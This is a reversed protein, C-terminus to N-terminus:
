GDLALANKAEDLAKDGEADDGRDRLALAQNVEVFPRMRTEYRAFATTHDGRSRALEEALVHAGVLALSTGQGSMPSPCYGADGVLVVRGRSWSPMHIQAMPGFYFVPSATMAAFLRPMEWGLEACHELVMAKQQAVSLNRELLASGFGAFIRLESNDRAPYLLARSKEGSIAIQWDELGLLNEVTFIALYIEMHRLFHEAPGFALSRTKSYIGDTGVVIDFRRSPGSEFEVTVSDDSQQIGTITNDFIYESSARTAEYLLPVLDDRLIEIDGSDFRGATFSREGTRFIEKGERDLASAGKMRTRHQEVAPLLGMRSVVELAVGRIDIAQGGPRLGPTREVVTVSFGHRALWYALAPGAVSAGSILVSTMDNFIGM